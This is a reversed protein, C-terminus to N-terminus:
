VKYNNINRRFEPDNLYLHLCREALKQFTFKYKISTIKFEEFLGRPIKVSTTHTDKTESM